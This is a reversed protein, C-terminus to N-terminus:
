TTPVLCRLSFGRNRESSGAPYAGNNYGFTFELAYYSSSGVRSSWYNGVLGANSFENGSSKVYIGGGQTFFLPSRAVHYANGNLGSTGSVSGDLVSKAIGYQSLLYYFTDKGTSETRSANPLKWGTPCISGSANVDAVAGGAGAAAASWQYYNGALYHADYETSTYTAGNKKYFNPETSPTRGGVAM